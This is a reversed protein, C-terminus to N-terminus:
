GGRHGERLPGRRHCRSKDARRRPLPGPRRALRPTRGRKRRRGVRHPVGATRAPPYTMKALHIAVDALPDGYLALEWDLFVTRGERIMMNKRHVDCHILRFPRARLSEAAGSLPAFPDEPIGLRRFLATFDPRHSDHLRRTNDWLRNAFRRPDDDLEDAPSPLQDTPIARLQGFLSAVDAPVHEPVATGRPAIADLQHGHIYEQIQYRPQDCSSYLRPAAAVHAAIAALIRPEPWQTVDMIDAHELPIRVNVAVCAVDVRINRNYFGASANPSDLAQRHLEAAAVGLVPLTDGCSSIHHALVSSPPPDPHPVAAMCVITSSARPCDGFLAGRADGAERRRQRYMCRPTVPADLGGRVHDAQQSGCVM